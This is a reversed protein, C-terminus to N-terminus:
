LLGSRATSYRRVPIGGESPSPSSERGTTGVGLWTEADTGEAETPPEDVVGGADWVEVVEDGLVPM